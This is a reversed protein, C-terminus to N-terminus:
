PILIGKNLDHQYIFRTKKTVENEGIIENMNDILRQRSDNDHYYVNIKCNERAEFMHSLINHDTEDLSHGIVHFTPTIM